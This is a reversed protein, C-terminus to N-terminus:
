WGACCRTRTGDGAPRPSLVCRMPRSNTGPMTPCRRRTPPADAASTRESQLAEPLILGYPPNHKNPLFAAPRPYELRLPANCGILVPQIKGILRRAEDAVLTTSSSAAGEGAGNRDAVGKRCGVSGLRATRYWRPLMVGPYRHPNQLMLLMRDAHRRRTAGRNSCNGGNAPLSIATRPPSTATRPPSAGVDCVVAAVFASLPALQGPHRPRPLRCQPCLSAQGRTDSARSGAIALALRSNRM